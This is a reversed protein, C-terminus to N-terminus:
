KYGLSLSFGGGGEEPFLDLRLERCLYDDLSKAAEGQKDLTRQMPGNLIQGIIGGAWWGLCAGLIGGGIYSAGPWYADTYGLHNAAAGLAIGIPIGAALGLRKSQEEFILSQERLDVAEIAKAAAESAGLDRYYQVAMPYNRDQNQIKFGSFSIKDVRDTEYLRMREELNSDCFANELMNPSNSSKEAEINEELGLEKRSDQNFVAAAKMHGFRAEHLNDNAAHKGLIIGCALGTAAGLSGWLAYSLGGLASNDAQLSKAAYAFGLIGAAEGGVAYGYLSTGASSRDEEAKLALEAAYASGSKRYYDPLARSDYPIGNIVASIYLKPSFDNESSRIEGVRGSEYLKTKTIESSPKAPVEDYVGISACGCCASLIAFVLVRNKL